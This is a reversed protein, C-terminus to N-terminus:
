CTAAAADRRVPDRWLRTRGDALDWEEGLECGHQAVVFAVRAECGAGVVDERSRVARREEVVVDGLSHRASCSDVRTEFAIAPPHAEVVQTVGEGAMQDDVDVEVDYLDAADEAM